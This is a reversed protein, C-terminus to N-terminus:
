LFLESLEVDADDDDGYELFHVRATKDETSISLITAQYWLDDFPAM